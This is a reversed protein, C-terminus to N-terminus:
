GRIARSIDTYLRSGVAGMRMDDWMIHIINPKKGFKAELEALRAQVEVDEQAWAEGNKAWLRQFEAEYIIGDPHSGAEQGLAPIASSLSLGVLMALSPMFRLTGKM